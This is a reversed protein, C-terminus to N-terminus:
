QDGVQLVFTGQEDRENISGRYDTEDFEPALTKAVRIYVDTMIACNSVMADAISVQQHSLSFHKIKIM